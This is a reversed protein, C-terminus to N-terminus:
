FRTGGIHRFVATYLVTTTKKLTELLYSSIARGTFDDSPVTRFIYKGVGSRETSTSTPSIMVLKSQEYVEAGGLSSSSGFHGIVGLVDADDALKKAVSAASEKTNQDTAILRKLPTGDIGKAKNVEDQAQASLRDIPM